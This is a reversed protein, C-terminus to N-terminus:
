LVLQNFLPGLVVPEEVYLALVSGVFYFHAGVVGFLMDPDVVVVEVLDL